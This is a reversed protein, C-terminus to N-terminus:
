KMKNPRSSFYNFKVIYFECFIYWSFITNRSFKKLNVTVTRRWFTRVEFVHIKKLSLLSIPIWLWKTQLRVNLWKALSALYNLTRKRFLHNHTRIESTDILSWMHRKSRAILEKVNLCVISHPSQFEYKVDYYRVTM